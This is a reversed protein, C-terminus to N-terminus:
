PTSNLQWIFDGHEATIHLLSGNKLIRKTIDSSPYSFVNNRNVSIIAYEPDVFELFNQSSADNAGHHGVVLIEIKQPLAKKKVLVSEEGIGADGMILFHKDEYQADVVLSNSNMSKGSAAHPSLVKIIVGQCEVEDGGLIRKVKWRKSDLAEAVWRAANLSPDFPIRHGSEYIVADPYKEMVTFIGSAHDPHLHTLFICELTDVGYRELSRVLDFSAGFHGTDLLIGSNGKQMLVAQGEGVDLVVIRFIQEAHLTSSGFVLLVVNILLLKIM